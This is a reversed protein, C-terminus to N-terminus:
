QGRRELSKLSFYKKKHNALVKLVLFKKFGLYTLLLGISLPILIAALGMAYITDKDALYINYLQVVYVISLLVLAGGFGLVLPWRRFEHGRVISLSEVDQIPITKYPFRNRLLHIGESNIGFQVDKFDFKSAM